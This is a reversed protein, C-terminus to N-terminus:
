KPETRKAARRDLLRDLARHLRARDHIGTFRGSNEGAYLVSEGKEPGYEEKLNKLIKEGKATLPM